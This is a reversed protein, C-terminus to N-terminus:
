VGLKARCSNLYNILMIVIIYIYILIQKWYVGLREVNKRRKMRILSDLIILKSVNYGYKNKIQMNNELKM